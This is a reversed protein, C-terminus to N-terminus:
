QVRTCGRKCITAAEIVYPQLHALAKRVRREDGGEGGGPRGDRALQELSLHESPHYIAPCPTTSLPAHSPLYRPVNHRAEVGWGRVDGEMGACGRGNGKCERVDGQM